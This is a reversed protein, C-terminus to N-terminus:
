FRKRAAPKNYTSDTDQGLHPLASQPLLPDLCHYVSPPQHAPVRDKHPPLVSILLSFRVRSMQM